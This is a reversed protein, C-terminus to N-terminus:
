YPKYEYGFRSALDCYALEEGCHFTIHHVQGNDDTEYVAWMSSDAFCGAINPIHVFTTSDLFISNSFGKKIAFQSFREKSNM